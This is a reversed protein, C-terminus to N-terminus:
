FHILKESHACGAAQAMGINSTQKFSTVGPLLKLNNPLTNWIQISRFSISELGHTSTVVLPARLRKSNRLNFHTNERIFIEKIFNPSKLNNLTKCIATMLLQLNQVYITM